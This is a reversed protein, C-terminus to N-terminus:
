SRGFHTTVISRFPRDRHRFSRDRHASIRLSAFERVPEDDRDPAVAVFHSASGIDIVCGRVVCVPPCYLQVCWQWM